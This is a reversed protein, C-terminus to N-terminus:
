HIFGFYWNVANLETCTTVSSILLTRTIFCWSLRRHPVSPIGLLLYGLVPSDLSLLSQLLLTTIPPVQWNEAWCSRRSPLSAAPRALQPSWDGHVNPVRGQEGLISQCTKAKVLVDWPLHDYCYIRIYICVCVCTIIMHIYICVCKYRSFLSTHKHM